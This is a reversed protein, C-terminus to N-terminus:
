QSKHKRDPVVFQLPRTRPINLGDAHPHRGLILGQIAGLQEFLNCKVHADIKARKVKQELFESLQAFVEPSSPLLPLSEQFSTNHTQQGGGGAQGNTQVNM